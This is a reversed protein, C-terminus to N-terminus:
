RPHLAQQAPALAAAQVEDSALSAQVATRVTTGLNEFRSAVSHAASRSPTAGEAYVGGFRRGDADGGWPQAAEAAEIATSRQTVTQRLAEVSAQWNRLAADAAEPDIHVSEYAM